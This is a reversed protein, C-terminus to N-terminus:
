TNLGKGGHRPPWQRSVHYLRVAELVEGQIRYILVFPLPKLLHERTRNLRGSRGIGPFALLAELASELGQNLRFVSVGEGAAEYAQLLDETAEPSWRVMLNAKV